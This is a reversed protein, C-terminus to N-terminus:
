EHSDIFQQIEADSSHIKFHFLGITRGKDTLAETFRIPLDELAVSPPPPGRDLAHLVHAALYRSAILSLALVATWAVKPTILRTLRQRAAEFSVPWAILLLIALGAAGGAVPNLGALWAMLAGCALLIAFAGPAHRALRPSGLFEVALLAGAIVVASLATILLTLNLSAVDAWPMRLFEEEISKSRHEQTCALRRGWACAASPGCHM